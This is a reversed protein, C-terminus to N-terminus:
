INNKTKKTLVIAKYVISIDNDLITIDGIKKAIDSGSGMAIALDSQELAIVDNIGDGVFAVKKGKAQLDAVIQSERNKLKKM